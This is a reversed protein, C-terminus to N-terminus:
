AGYNSARYTMIVRAGGAAKTAAAATCKIAVIRDDDDDPAIGMMGVANGRTVNVTADATAGTIFTSATVLDDGDDNLLGVSLTLTDTANSDLEDSVLTVEIPM